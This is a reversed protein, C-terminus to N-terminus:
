VHQQLTHFLVDKDFNFYSYYPFQSILISCPEYTRVSIKIQFHKKNKIKYYRRMLDIDKKCLRLYGTYHGNAEILVSNTSDILQYRFDAFNLNYYFQIGGMSILCHIEGSELDSICPIRAAVRRSSKNFVDYYLDIYEKSDRIHTLNTVVSDTMDVANIMGKNQEYYKRMVPNEVDMQRGMSSFTLILVFAILIIYRSM